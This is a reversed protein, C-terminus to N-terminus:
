LRSSPARVWPPPPARPNPEGGKRAAPQRHAVRFTGEPPPGGPANRPRAPGGARSGTPGARGNKASEGNDANNEAAEDAAATSYQDLRISTLYSTPKEASATSYQDLRRKTRRPEAPSGTRMGLASPKSWYKVLILGEAPPSPPPERAEAPDDAPARRAFVPKSEKKKPPPPRSPRKERKRRKRGTKRAGRDRMRQDRRAANEIGPGNNSRHTLRYKALIHIANAPM